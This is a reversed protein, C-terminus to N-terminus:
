NLTKKMERYCNECDEMESFWITSPIAISTIGMPFVKRIKRPDYSSSVQEGTLSTFEVEYDAKLFVDGYLGTFSREEEEKEYLDEEHQEQNKMCNFCKDRQREDKLWLTSPLGGFCIGSPFCKKIWASKYSVSHRQGHIDTYEVRNVPYLVVENGMIGKFVEYNANDREGEFKTKAPEVVKLNADKSMGFFCDDREAVDKFWISKTLGGMSIGSPFSKTIKKPDFAEGYTLGHSDQYQVFGDELLKVSGYLGEFITKSKAHVNQAEILVQMEIKPKPMTIIEEPEQEQCTDPNVIQQRQFSGCQQRPQLDMNHKTTRYDIRFDKDVMFREALDSNDTSCAQLGLVQNNGM